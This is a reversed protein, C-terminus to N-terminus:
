TVQGNVSPAKIAGSSEMCNSPSRYVLTGLAPNQHLIELLNNDADDFLVGFSAATVVIAARFGARFAETCDDSCFAATQASSLEIGTLINRIDDKFWM